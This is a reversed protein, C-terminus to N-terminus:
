ISRMVGGDVTVCAGTMYSSCESALFAVVNAVEEPRGLRQMPIDRVRASLLEGLSTGRIDAERQRNRVQRPTEISGPAVTTVLIGEAAYERSLSKTWNIVAANNLGVAISTNSPEWGATGAVNVIRGWGTKLMHPVVERTMRLYGLLKGELMQHWQADDVDAFRASPVSGANNVLIHIAGFRQVAEKVLNRVDDLRQVDCRVALVETGTEKVISESAEALLTERRACLVLRAGERALARAAAYGIGDSSGTIIAVKGALGFDM